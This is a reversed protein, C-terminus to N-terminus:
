VAERQSNSRKEVGSYFRAIECFNFTSIPENRVAWLLLSQYPRKAIQYRSGVIDM